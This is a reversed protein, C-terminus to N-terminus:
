NRNVWTYKWLCSLYDFQNKELNFVFTCCFTHMWNRTTNYQWCIYTAGRLVDHLQILSKEWLLPQKIVFSTCFMLILIQFDKFAAALSNRANSLAGLRSRYHVLFCRLTTKLQSYYDLARSNELGNKKVKVRCCWSITITFFFFSIPILYFNQFENKGQEFTSNFFVKM